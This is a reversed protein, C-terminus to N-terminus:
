ATSDKESISSVYRLEFQSVKYKKSAEVIGINVSDKMAKKYIHANESTLINTFRVVQKQSLGVNTSLSGLEEYLKVEDKIKGSIWNCFFTKVVGQHTSPVSYIFTMAQTLITVGNIAHDEKDKLFSRKTFVVQKDFSGDDLTKYFPESKLYGTELFDKDSYFDYFVIGDIPYFSLSADFVFCIREKDENILALNKRLASIGILFVYKVDQPITEIYTDSCLFECEKANKRRILDLVVKEPPTHSVALTKM